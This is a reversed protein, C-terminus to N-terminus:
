WIELVAEPRGAEAKYMDFTERLAEVYKGACLFRVCLLCVCSVCSCLLCVSSVCLLCVCVSSVCVFCVLPRDNGEKTEHM